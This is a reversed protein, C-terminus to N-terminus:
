QPQFQVKGPIWQNNILLETSDLTDYRDDYGGAVAAIKEKTVIDEVTASGHYRRGQQLDPGESFIQEEHDYYWTKASASSVDTWGTVGGALISTTKNLVTITHSSVGTPLKPGPYSGNVSVVESTDLSRGEYYGGFVHMKDDYIISSAYERKEAMTTLEKWDNDIFQYCKDQSIGSAGGCVTPVGNVTGGVAGYLETPFDKLDQCITNSQLDFVETKVSSSYPYGTTIM